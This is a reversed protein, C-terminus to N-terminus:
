TGAVDDHVCAARNKPDTLQLGLNCEASSFSLVNDEQLSKSVHDRQDREEFFNVRDEGNVHLDERKYAFHVLIILRAYSHGRRLFKRRPCFVDYELVVM